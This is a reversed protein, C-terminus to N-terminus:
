SEKKIQMEWLKAYSVFRSFVQYLAYIIGETGDLFAAQMIMRLWFERVMASIFRLINMPPHKAEFMLNAEVESRNNTKEVMDSLNNHKIHILPNKLHGLKGRFIPEEHLSGEWKIFESKKFLRKQYDPYQGSYKFEKGFIFNRRPIAYASFQGSINEIEKKLERTIQEDTDIYLIWEGKAKKAGFNRWAAFGGKLNDSDVKIVEDVWSVSNVCKKLLEKDVKGGVLIVASIEM